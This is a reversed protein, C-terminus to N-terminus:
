ATIKDLYEAIKADYQATHSFAKLAFVRRLEIAKQCSNDTAHDKLVHLVTDYDDPDVIVTVRHHNKAASRIMAPGGIDINEIAEEVTCGPKAITAAFPYLNVAVIDIFKIGYEAMSITDINSRGLIGGHVLPHLTKVRGDMMEPFGTYASVDIVSIDADRLTKATGGTSLINFGLEELGRGFPVIDKKDSVSLLATSKSM